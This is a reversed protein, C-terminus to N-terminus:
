IWDVIIKIKDRKCCEIKIAPRGSNMLRGEIRQWLPLVRELQWSDSMQEPGDLNM